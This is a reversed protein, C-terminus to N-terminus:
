PTSGSAAQFLVIPDLRTLGPILDFHGGSSIIYTLGHNKMIAAHITDRARVGKSAYQGFLSVASQMDAVTVPLVQPVLTMLHYLGRVRLAQYPTM